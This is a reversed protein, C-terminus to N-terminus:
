VVLEADIFEKTILEGSLRATQQARCNTIFCHIWTMTRVIKLYKSQGKMYWEIEEQKVSIYMEVTVTDNSSTKKNRCVSKKIESDIEAENETDDSSPWQNM